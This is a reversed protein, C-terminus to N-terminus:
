APEEWPRNALVHDLWTLAKRQLREVRAPPDKILRDALTRAIWPYLPDSTCGHGFAFMLITLVMEGQTAPLAHRRAETKGEAILARLSGEGLCAAKQLFVRDMESRMGAEFADSSFTPPHAALGALSQLASRTHIADPGSVRQQYDLIKKHLREARTMQDGSGRLIETAWPYQPDTDFHSGYLFMMEVYLRIPGRYTFGFRAAGGFAQRLAERLQSVGIVKCLRPSFEQSHEVMEDEFRRMAADQFTEIQTPRITLM